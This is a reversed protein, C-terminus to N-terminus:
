PRIPPSGGVAATRDDIPEEPETFVVVTRAMLDCVARRRPTLLIPLFGWLLPISIVMGLMRTLGRRPPLRGGKAAVVRTQMVRNGVTQGTTSWFGVFYSVVFIVYVCSGIV